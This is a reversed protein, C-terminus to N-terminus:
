EENQSINEIVRIYSDITDNSVNTDSAIEELAVVQSVHDPFEAQLTSKLEARASALQNQRSAGENEPIEKIAQFAQLHSNLSENM